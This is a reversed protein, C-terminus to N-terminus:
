GRVLKKSLNSLNEIRSDAEEAKYDLMKKVDDAVCVLQFYDLRALRKRFAFRWVAWKNYAFKM